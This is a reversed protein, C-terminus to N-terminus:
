FNTEVRLVNEIEIEIPRSTSVVLSVLVMLGVKKLGSIGLTPKYSPKTYHPDSPYIPKWNGYMVNPASKVIGVM